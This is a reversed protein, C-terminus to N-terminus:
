YARIGENKLFLKFAPHGLFVAVRLAVSSCLVIERFQDVFTSIPLHHRLTGMFTAVGQIFSVVTHGSINTFIRPFVFEKERYM